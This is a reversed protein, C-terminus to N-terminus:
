RSEMYFSLLVPNDSFGHLFNLYESNLLNGNMKVNNKIEQKKM